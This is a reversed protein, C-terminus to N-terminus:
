GFPGASLLEAQDGGLSGDLDFDAYVYVHVNLSSGSQNSIDLRQLLYAGVKTEQLLLTLAADFGRGDVNTWSLTAENGVYSQADPAPFPTEGPDGDVRYWWWLQHLDNSGGQARLSAKGGSSAGVESWSFSSTGDTVTGQAAADAASFVCAIVIWQAIFSRAM